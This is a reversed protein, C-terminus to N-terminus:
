RMRPERAARAARRTRSVIVTPPESTSSESASRPVRPEGTPRVSPQASGSEVGWGPRRLHQSPTPCRMRSTARWASARRVRLDTASCASPQGLDDPCPEGSAQCEADSGFEDTAHRECNTARDQRRRRVELAALDAPGIEFSWAPARELSPSAWHWALDRTRQVFQRRADVLVDAESDSDQPASVPPTRSRARRAAPAPRLRQMLSGHRGHRSVADANACGVRQLWAAVDLAALNPDGPAGESRGRAAM